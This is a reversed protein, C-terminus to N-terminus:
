SPRREPRPPPNSFSLRLTAVATAAIAALPTSPDALWQMSLGLLFSGIMLAGADADLDARIDGEAQGRRVLERLWVRVREHSAAFAASQPTRDAVAGALLMFYAQGGRADRLDQVYREIYHALAELAPLDALHEAAIVAERRGHLHAIVAETLGQKSGFRQSALGRSYGAARGIEEFTAASVGREAVVRLTAEVLQRDSEDRREAQTRRTPPTLDMPPM